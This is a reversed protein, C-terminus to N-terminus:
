VPPTPGHETRGAAGAALADRFKGLRISLDKQPVPQAVYPPELQAGQKRGGETRRIDQRVERLPM